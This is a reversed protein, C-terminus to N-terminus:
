AARPRFPRASNRGPRSDAASQGHWLGYELRLFGRFGPDDVGNPLGFPKQDIEDNFRGFTDYAVGLMAYDLHAPVWLRRAEALRGALVAATLRDTDRALRQM